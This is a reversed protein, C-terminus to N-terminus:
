KQSKSSRHYALATGGILIAQHKAFLDIRSFRELLEQTQINIM